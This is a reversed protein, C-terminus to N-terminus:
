RKIEIRLLRNEKAFLGFFYKFRKLVATGALDFKFVSLLHNKAGEASVAGAFVAGLFLSEERQAFDFALKVFEAPSHAFKAIALKKNSAHDVDSALFYVCVIGRDLGISYDFLFDFILNLFLM